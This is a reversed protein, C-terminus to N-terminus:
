SEMERGVTVSIEDPSTFFLEKGKELVFRIVGYPTPLEINAYSLGLLSPNVSIKRYGPEIIELGLLAKPLSYVPSGGWAHSHDFPYTPEPPIFGEALGKSCEAVPQKWRNLIELTFEERLGNRYIAELLFHTFYPQCDGLEKDSMIRTLLNKAKDKECVGFYAALINSHMRYYRKEVNQPMFPAILETPTPTNLGEFYLGRECDYLEQNIATKLRCADQECKKSMGKESLISFIKQATKLAGYYFLNLCTQGLAKPPHHLSIEDIYLWDIFMYDPPTEILNNAGIYGEFRDLLMVLADACDELLTKDSTFMFVDYLMQVWILSYTTHFMRGDHNRLLEATRVVDFKSLDMDGFSFATMLSEIYYDGTCALPESHRPSDLHIMQRCYKLTHVCVDLVNNLEEDSTTTKACTYVPYCTSILGLEITSTTESKNEVNITYGGVSHLQFGRYESDCNFTFSEKSDCGDLEFCNLQIKTEGNTHAKLYVFGAYIKDFYVTAEKKSKPDVTIQTCDMPYLMEEDRPPIPATVTHWINQIEDAYSYEDPRLTGDYAYPKVYANNRRAKWTKDTNIVKKTGDEFTIVATLMFGGRGKSYENIGVPMLKVRAFFNLEKTNPSLTVETSYHRSQPTENFLFDGGVSVPGTAVFKNNCYLQFETDGSFRLTAATVVKEFTYERCFEAVTYNGNEKDLFGSFITTQNNPYLEESLWIWKEMINKM